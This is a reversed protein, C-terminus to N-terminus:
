QVEGRLVDRDSRTPHWWPGDPTSPHSPEDRAMERREDRILAQLEALDAALFPTM